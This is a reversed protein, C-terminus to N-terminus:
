GLCSDHDLGEFDDGFGDAILVMRKAVHVILRLFRLLVPILTAFDLLIQMQGIPLSLLCRSGM